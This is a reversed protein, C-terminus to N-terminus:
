AEQGEDRYERLKNRITRSTIDLTEATKTRNGDHAGLTKLIVEKEIDRLSMGVKFSVSGDEQVSNGDQMSLTKRLHINDRDVCDSQTEIVAEQVINQLQRINGPFGYATLQAMAEDSFGNIKRDYEDCYIKLFHNALLLIDAKRQRLPPISIRIVDLRFFLDPRFKGDDVLKEINENTSAIVRANVKTPQSAGIREIEREQLARLLKAQLEWSLESIEDLFLTGKHAREFRGIHLANAGTYSGKEAGFMESELLSNPIAACNLAILEGTENRRSNNHLAQAILEKGTGTEGQILVPANSPAVMRVKDLIQLMYTDETIINGFDTEKKPQRVDIFQEVIDILKDPPFPKQLYDVAGEKIVNIADQLNPFGTMIVVSTEPRLEKIKQFLALGDMEPMKVDTLVLSFDRHTMLDIAEHASSATMASYGGRRLTEIIAGRMFDEDDVVLIDCENM